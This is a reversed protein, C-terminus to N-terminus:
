NSKNLGGFIYEALEVCSYPFKKIFVEIVLKGYDSVVQDLHSRLEPHIKWGREDRNTSVM